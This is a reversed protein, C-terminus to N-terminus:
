LTLITFRKQLDLLGRNGHCGTRTRQFSFHFPITICCLLQGIYLNEWHINQIHTVNNQPNLVKKYLINQHVFLHQQTRDTEHQIFISIYPLFLSISPPHAVYIYLLTSSINEFVNKQHHSRVISKSLCARRACIHWINIYMAWYVM